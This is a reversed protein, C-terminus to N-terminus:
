KKRPSIEIKVKMLKRIIGTADIIITLIFVLTGWEFMFVQIPNGRTFCLSLYGVEFVIATFMNKKILVWITCKAVLINTLRYGIHNTLYERFLFMPGALVPMFINIYWDPNSVSCIKTLLVYIIYEALVVLVITLAIDVVSAVFYRTGYNNNM